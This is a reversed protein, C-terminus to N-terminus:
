DESTESLYIDYKQKSSKGIISIQKIFDENLNRIIEDVALIYNNKMEETEQENFKNFNLRLYYLKIINRQLLQKFKEVKDLQKDSKIEGIKEEIKTISDVIMNHKQKVEKMIVSDKEDINDKTLKIQNPPTIKRSPLTRAPGKVKPTPMPTEVEQQLGPQQAAPILALQTVPQQLISPGKIDDLRGDIVQLVNDMEAYDTELKNIDLTSNRQQHTLLEISRSLDEYIKPLQAATKQLQTINSENGELRALINNAREVEVAILKTYKEITTDTTNLKTKTQTNFLEIKENISQISTRISEELQQKISDIEGKNTTILSRLDTISNDLGSKDTELQTTRGEIALVRSGHENLNRMYSELETQIQPLVSAAQKLITINNENGELRELINNAKALQETFAGRITDISDETLKAKALQETFAGRITDISNDTKDLRTTTTTNYLEIQQNIREISTRISEELQQKISDIEGKNTTILSRLDTISNDLRSKDTELQTAKGEIASIRTAHENINQIYSELNTEIQQLKTATDQSLKIDSENGELRDLIKSASKLQNNIIKNITEIDSETKNLRIATTTNYLEIQQNIKLISTKISDELQQKISDIKGQFAADLDTIGQRFKDESIHTILFEQKLEDTKNILKQAFRQELTEIGSTNIRQQLETLKALLADNNAQITTNLGAIERSHGDISANIEGISKINDTLGLTTAQMNNGLAALADSHGTIKANLEGRTAEMNNGLTAIASSQGTIKANLEGRTAQMNNGLTAIASSQGTIKTNLEGISKINDKKTAEMNNGLTALSDSHGNIMDMLKDFAETFKRTLAGEMRAMEKKHVEVGVCETKIFETMDTKFTDKLERRLQEINITGDKPMSSSLSAFKDDIHKLLVTKLDDHSKIPEKASISTIPIPIIRPITSPWYNYSGSNYYM